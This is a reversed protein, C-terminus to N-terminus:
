ARRTSTADAAHGRGDADARARPGVLRERLPEIRRFERCFLAKRPVGLVEVGDLHVRGEVPERALRHHLAPGVARRVVEHHVDLREAEHRAMRHLELRDRRLEAVLHRHVLAAADVPRRALQAALDEPEEELRELRQPALALEAPDEHLQRRVDDVLVRREVVELPRALLEGAVLHEDLEAVARPEVVLVAVRAEREELPDAGRVDDDVRRAGVRRLVEDRGDDRRGRRGRVDAEVAAVEARPVLAAARRGLAEVVEVGVVLERLPDLRQALQCACASFAYAKKLLLADASSGSLGSRRTECAAVFARWRRRRSSTLLM